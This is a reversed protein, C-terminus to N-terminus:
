PGCTPLPPFLAATPMPPPPPAEQKPETPRNAPAKHKEEYKLTLKDFTGRQESLLVDARDIESRVDRLTDRDMVRGLDHTLEFPDEMCFLHRDGRFGGEKKDWGKQAKTLYTGVRVSAVSKVFDFERAYRRYFGVLLEGLSQVNMPRMAQLAERVAPVDTCYACEFEKGDHTRVITSPAYDSQANPGYLQQLVPLIPPTTTQLFHIVCLVWAYSSPSGALACESPTCDAPPAPVAARESRALRM